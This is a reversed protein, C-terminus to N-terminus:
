PTPNGYRRFSGAGSPPPPRVIWNPRPRADRVRGAGTKGPCRSGQEFVLQLYRVLQFGKDPIHQTVAAIFDTPSLAGFNGGQKKNMRSPLPREGGGTRLADQRDLIPQAPHLPGDARPGRAGRAVPRSRHLSFGSHKWSLLMEARARPLNQEILFAIVRRRFIEELPWLVLDEPLPHFVGLDDFLGDAV